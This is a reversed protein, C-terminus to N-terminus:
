QNGNDDKVEYEVDVVNDNQAQDPEAPKNGMIEDFLAMRDKDLYNNEHAAINIQNMIKPQGQMIDNMVKLLKVATEGGKALEQRMLRLILERGDIKEVLGESDALPFQETLFQGMVENLTIKTQRNRRRVEGSKIGGNRVREKRKEADLQTVPILNKTSGRKNAM